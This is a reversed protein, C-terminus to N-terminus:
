IETVGIDRLRLYVDRERGFGLEREHVKVALRGGETQNKASFVIGHDGDGLVDGLLLGKGNAYAEARRVLDAKDM